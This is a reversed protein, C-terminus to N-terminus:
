SFVIYRTVSNKSVEYFFINPISIQSKKKGVYLCGVEINQKIKIKGKHRYMHTPTQTNSYINIIEFCFLFRHKKKLFLVSNLHNFTLCNPM